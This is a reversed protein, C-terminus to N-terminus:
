LMAAINVLNRKEVSPRKLTLYTKHDIIEEFLERHQDDIVEGIELQLVENTHGETESDSSQLANGQKVDNDL